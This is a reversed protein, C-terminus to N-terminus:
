DSNRSYTDRMNRWLLWGDLAATAVALARLGYAARKDTTQNSAWWLFPAAILVAGAEGVLHANAQTDDIHRGGFYGGYHGDSYAPYSAGGEWAPGQVFGGGCGPPSPDCPGLVGFRTTTLRSARPRWPGVYDSPQPPPPPPVTPPLPGGPLRMTHLAPPETPLAPQPPMRRARHRTPVPPPPASGGPSEQADIWQHVPRWSGPAFRQGFYSGHHRDDILRGPAFSGAASFQAYGHHGTWRLGDTRVALGGFYAYRDTAYELSVHPPPSAAWDAPTETLQQPYLMRLWGPLLMGSEAFAPTVVAQLIPGVAAATIEDLVDEIHTPEVPSPEGLVPEGSDLSPDYPPPGLAPPTYSVPVGVVPEPSPQYCKCFPASACGECPGGAACSECCSM